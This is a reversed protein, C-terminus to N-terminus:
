DREDSVKVSCFTKMGNVKRKYDRCYKMNERDIMLGASQPIGNARKLFNIWRRKANIYKAIDKKTFLVYLEGDVFKMPRDPDNYRENLMAKYRIKNNVKMDGDLSIITHHRNQRM